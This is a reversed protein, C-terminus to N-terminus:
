GESFRIPRNKAEAFKVPDIGANECIRREVDSLAVTGAGTNSARPERTEGGAVVARQPTVDLYGRLKGPSEMGYSLAWEREAPTLKGSRVAANVMAVVDGRLLKRELEAVRKSLSVNVRQTKSLATLAGVIEAPDSKGTAASAAAVIRSAAATTPKAAPVASAAAPKDEDDEGDALTEDEESSPAASDDDSPPPTDGEALAAAQEKDKDDEMALYSRSAAVLPTMNRTAPINTLALNILELIRGSDQEASFYPSFYLWEKNSLAAFAPPTWRVDVAYLGDSRVELLFSGASKGDGARRDPDVAKHEYDITLRNGYMRWAGLVSRAAARDFLFTGKTTEIEGFPWIQFEVPPASSPMPTSLGVTHRPKQM